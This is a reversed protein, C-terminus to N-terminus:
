FFLMLLASVVFVVAAIKTGLALKADISKGKNKGFYTEAEGAIAGLGKANSSQFLVTAVLVLSALVVIVSLIVNLVEM